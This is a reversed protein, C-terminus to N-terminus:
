LPLVRIFLFIGLLVAWGRYRQPLIMGLLIAPLFLLFAKVLLIGLGVVLALLRLVVAGLGLLLMLAMVGGILTGFTKQVPHELVQQMWKSM